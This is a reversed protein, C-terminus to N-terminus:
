AQGGLVAGSQATGPVPDFPACVCGGDVGSCRRTRSPAVASRGFLPGCLDLAFLQEGTPATWTGVVEACVPTQSMRVQVWVPGGLGDPGRLREFDAVTLPSTSATM